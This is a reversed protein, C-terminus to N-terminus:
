AKAQVFASRILGRSAALQKRFTFRKLKAHLKNNKDSQRTGATGCISPQPFHRALRLVDRNHEVRERLNVACAEEDM